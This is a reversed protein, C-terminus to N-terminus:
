DTRAPRRTEMLALLRQANEEPPRRGDLLVDASARSPAVWRRYMPAVSSVYQRLVSATSRGRERRDRDLRRLLRTWEPATLFVRLDAQEAAERRVLLLTGELVILDSVPGVKRYGRRAHQTFDYIPVAAPEGHRLRALTRELEDWDIRDPHDFNLRNRLRLDLHSLDQYFSDQSLTLCRDTGRLRQIQTAVATKGSGSGGAILLLKPSSM